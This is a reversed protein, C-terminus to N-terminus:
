ESPLYERDATYTPRAPRICSGLHGTVPVLLFSFQRSIDLVLRDSERSPRPSDRRPGGLVPRPGRDIRAPRQHAPCGKRSRAYISVSPAGPRVFLAGSQVVIQGM